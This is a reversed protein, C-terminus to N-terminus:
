SKRGPKKWDTNGTTAIANAWARDFARQGVGFQSQAEERYATKKKTPKGARMMDTLWTHCDHEAKVTLRRESGAQNLANALAGELETRRLLIHRTRTGERRARLAERLNGVSLNGTNFVARGDQSLWLATPVPFTQGNEFVAIASVMDSGLLSRLEHVASELRRLSRKPAPFRLQRIENGTWAPGLLHRGTLDVADRLTVFGSPVFEAM